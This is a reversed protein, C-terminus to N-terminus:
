MLRCPQWDACAAAPTGCPICAARRHSVRSACSETYYHNPFSLSRLSESLSFFLTPQWNPQNQVFIQLSLHQQVKLIHITERIPRPSRFPHRQPCFAAVLNSNKRLLNTQKTAFLPSKLKRALFRNTKDSSISTQNTSKRPRPSYQRVFNPSNVSTPQMNSHSESACPWHCRLNAINHIHFGSILDIKFM